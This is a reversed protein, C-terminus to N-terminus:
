QPYGTRQALFYTVHRYQIVFASESTHRRALSTPLRQPEDIRQVSVVTKEHWPQRPAPHRVRGIASALIIEAAAYRIKRLVNLRLAQIAVRIAFQCGM